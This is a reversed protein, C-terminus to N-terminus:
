GGVVATIGRNELFRRLEEAKEDTPPTIGLPQIGDELREHKSEGLRHYPLLHVTIGGGLSDSVFEAVAKLNELDDNYGPILPIRLAINKCLEKKIRIANALIISNEVGTGQRHKESDMHKIDYLVLDTNKLIPLFSEWIGYGCTEIATHIGSEKCLRLIEAAFKSQALVEGGSLTVGGGSAEFFIREKNVREFVDSATMMEGSIERAGTLCVSVCTGCGDCKSRDNVIKGGILEIAGKPCAATCRLCCTCRESLFLLKPKVTQSEPNQCWECRLPCGSLFVTTRIGPGDHISYGQINFM